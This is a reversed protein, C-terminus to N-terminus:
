QSGWKVEQVHFGMGFTGEANGKLTQQPKMQTGGQFAASSSGGPLWGGLVGGVVDGVVEDSGRAGLGGSTHPGRQDGAEGLRLELGGGSGSSLFVGLGM